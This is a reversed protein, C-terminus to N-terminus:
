HQELDILVAESVRQLHEFGSPYILRRMPVQQALRTFLSLRQPQWGLAQVTRAIFSNRVMEIVANIPSVSEIEISDGREATERREPLYIAKLPMSTACFTGFGGLGVPIRRKTLEPHVLDLSEYHGLFHMASDPWMRMSAYGFRGYVGDILIDAPLIDDTLLPHGTQMLTSALGSKGGKNTALFAVASDGVVVASAHLMLVGRRELYYSLVVGLLYIEVLHDYKPDKLHAIIRDTGIYFDILSTFQIIEWHGVRLISVLPTGLEDAIPSEYVSM